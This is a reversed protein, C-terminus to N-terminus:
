AGPKQRAEDVAARGQEALPLLNGGALLLLGIRGATGARAPRRVHSVNAFLM